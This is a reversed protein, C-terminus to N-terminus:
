SYETCNWEDTSDGCDDQHDCVYSDPICEGNDCEFSSPGYQNCIPETSTILTRFIANHSDKNKSSFAKKDHDNM